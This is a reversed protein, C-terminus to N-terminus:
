SPQCINSVNLASLNIISLCRVKLLFITTNISSLGLAMFNLFARSVGDVRIAINDTVMVGNVSALSM